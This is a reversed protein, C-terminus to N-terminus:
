LAVFRLESRRNESVETACPGNVEDHGDANGVEMEQGVVFGVFLSLRPQAHLQCSSQQPLGAERGGARYSAVFWEFRHDVRESREGGGM